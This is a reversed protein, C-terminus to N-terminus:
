LMIYIRCGLYAGFDNETPGVEIVEHVINVFGGNVLGVGLRNLFYRKGMRRGLTELM